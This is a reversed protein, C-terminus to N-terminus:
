MDEWLDSPKVNLVKKKIAEYILKKTAPTAKQTISGITCLRTLTNKGLQTEKILYAQSIGHADIYSGLKTRKKKWSEDM